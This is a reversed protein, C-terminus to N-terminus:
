DKVEKIAKRFRPFVVKEYVDYKTYKCFVVSIGELINKHVNSEGKDTCVFIPTVWYSNSAEWCSPICSLIILKLFLNIRSIIKRKM